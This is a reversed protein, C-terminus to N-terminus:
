AAATSTSRPAAASAKRCRRRRRLVGELGAIPYLNQPARAENHPQSAFRPLCASVLEARAIADAATGASSPLLAMAGAQAAQGAHEAAAHGALIAAAALAVALVLPLLAVFEVTAQGTEDAARERIM